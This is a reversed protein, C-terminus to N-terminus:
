IRMQNTITVYQIEKPSMGWSKKYIRHCIWLSMITKRITTELHSSWKLKKDVTIGLYKAGSAFSNKIGNLPVPKFIKWGENELLLYLSWKTPTSPYAEGRVGTSITM